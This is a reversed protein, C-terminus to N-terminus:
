FTFSRRLFGAKNVAVEAAESLATRLYHEGCEAEACHLERCVEDAELGKGAELAGSLEWVADVAVSTACKPVDVGAGCESVYKRLLGVAEMLRLGGSESCALLVGLAVVGAYRLLERGNAQEACESEEEGMYEHLQRVQPGLDVMESAEEAVARAIGDHRIDRLLGAVEKVKGGAAAHVLGQAAVRVGEESVVKLVEEQAPAEYALVREIGEHARYSLVPTKMYPEESESAAHLVTSETASGSALELEGDRWVGCEGAGGWYQCQTEHQFQEPDYYTPPRISPRSPESAVPPIAQDSSWTTQMYPSRPLSRVV